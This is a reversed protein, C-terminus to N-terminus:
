RRMGAHAPAAAVAHGFGHPLPHGPHGPGGHDIHHFHHRHEVIVVTPGIGWFWPGAAWYPWYDFYDLYDPYIAPYIGAPPAPMLYVQPPLGPTTQTIRWSGDPQPCAEITAQEPRGGVTVPVTTTQCAPPTAAAPAATGTQAAAPTGATPPTVPACAVGALVMALIAIPRM